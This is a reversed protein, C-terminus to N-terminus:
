SSSNKRQHLLKKPKKKEMNMSKWIFRHIINMVKTKRRCLSDIVMEALCIFYSGKKAHTKALIIKTSKVM